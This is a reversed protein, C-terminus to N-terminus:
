PQPEPDQPGLDQYAGAAGLVPVLLEKGPFSGYQVYVPVLDGAEVGPNVIIIQEQGVVNGFSAAAGSTVAKTDTRKEGDSEFQLSVSVDDTGSNVLTILLSIASGDENIIGIANRVQVDGINAGVGSGPDYQILTAQRSIFTCGATGVLLAAALVVSAVARAVPTRTIM